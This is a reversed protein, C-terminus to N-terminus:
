RVKLGAIKVACRHYGQPFLRELDDIELNNGECAEYITPVIGKKKFSNRLFHIVQWHRETLGEYLGMEHARLLAYQEDWDDPNALFGWGDITYTKEPLTIAATRRPALCPFFWGEEDKTINWVMYTIGALKCAGRLYGTPFLQQLDKLHLGNTKCTQFVLPCRGERECTERIFHIVEWHKDTLGDPIGLTQALGIAFDEDWENPDTLFGDEDTLYTKGNFTLTEM